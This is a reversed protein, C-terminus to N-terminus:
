REICPKWGVFQERLFLKRATQRAANTTTKIKDERACKCGLVAEYDYFAM